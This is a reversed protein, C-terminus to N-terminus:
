GSASNRTPSARLTPSATAASAWRKTKPRSSPTWRRDRSHIFSSCERAWGRCAPAVWREGEKRRTAPFIFRDAAAATYDALKDQWESLNVGIREAYHKPRRGHEPSYDYAKEPPDHLYALLKNKWFNPDSM